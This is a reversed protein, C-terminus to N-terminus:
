KKYIPCTACHAGCPSKDLEPKVQGTSWLSTVKVIDTYFIEATELGVTSKPRERISEAWWKHDHPITLVAFVNNNKSISLVCYPCKGFFTSINSAKKKNVATGTIICILTSRNEIM